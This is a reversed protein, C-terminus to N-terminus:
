ARTSGDPETRRTAFWTLVADGAEATGRVVISRGTPILGVSDARALFPDEGDLIVIGRSDLVKTVVREVPEGAPTRLGSLTTLLVVDCADFALGREVIDRGSIAIIAVEALPNALVTRAGGPDAARDRVLRTNGVRLREPTALGATLGAAALGEALAGCEREVEDGVVAVVPVRVPAGYPFLSAVIAPGVDWGDGEGPYLENRYGSGINVDVIAGGVEAFPRGIDPTVVDINIPDLGFLRSVQVCTAVNDPHLNGTCVSSVGGGYVLFAPRVTVREGSPIVSELSWGARALTSETLADVAIPRLPDHDRRGRRPDTNERAILDRVTSLGDGTVAPPQVRYAMPVTGNAVTVRYAVGAQHREVLVIGGRSARLAAPFSAELDADNRVDVTVGSSSGSDAPKVVVPYGLANAATRAQEITRAGRSEAVPLGAAALYASTLLKDTIIRDGIVGMRSTTSGMFRQRHVGTGLEIIRGRPDIRTVPIGRARAARLVRQGAVLQRRSAALDCYASYDAELEDSAGRLRRDLARVAIHLATSGTVAQEHEVAIEIEHGSARFRHVQVDHGARRQLNIAAVAILEGLEAEQLCQVSDLSMGSPTPDVLCGIEALLSSAIRRAHAPEVDPELSVLGWTVPVGAWVNPGDFTHLLSISCAM